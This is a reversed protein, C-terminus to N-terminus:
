KERAAKLFNEKDILNVLKVILHGPTSHNKNIEPPSDIWKRIQIGTEWWLNPFNEARIQEFVYEPGTDRRCGQSGLYVYIKRRLNDNIEM